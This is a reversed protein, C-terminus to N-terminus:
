NRTNIMLDATFNGNLKPDFMNILVNVLENDTKLIMGTSVSIKAPIIDEETDMPGLEISIQKILLKFDTLNNNQILEKIGDIESIFPFDALPLSVDKLITITDTRPIDLRFEDEELPITFSDPLELETLLPSIVRILNSGEGGEKEITFYFLALLENLTGEPLEPIFDDLSIEKGSFYLALGWNQSMWEGCWRERPDVYAPTKFPEGKVWQTSEEGRIGRVEWNYDTERQLSETGFSTGELEMAEGENFRIEYKDANGKWLLIASNYTYSAVRLDSPAVLAEPTETGPDPVEPENENDDSCGVFLSTLFLIGLIHIWRTKM